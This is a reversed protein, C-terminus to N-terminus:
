RWWKEGRPKASFLYGAVVRMGSRTGSVRWLDATCRHHSSNWKAHHHLNDVSNEPPSAPRSLVTLVKWIAEGTRRHANNFGLTWANQAWNRRPGECLPRQPRLFARVIKKHGEDKCRFLPRLQLPGEASHLWSVSRIRVHDLGAKVIKTRGRNTIEIHLPPRFFGYEAM